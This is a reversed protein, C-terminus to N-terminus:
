SGDPTSASDLYELAKKDKPQHSKSCAEVCAPNGGCLDCKLVESDPGIRMAQFPCAEVCLRCGSCLDRDLSYAGTSPDQRLAGPVPCAEVCKAKRCHRCVTASAGAEETFGITLSARSLSAIGSKALSCALECQRCGTCITPHFKLTKMFPM